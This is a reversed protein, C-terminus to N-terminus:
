DSQGNAGGGLLAVACLVVMPRAWNVLARHKALQLPAPVASHAMSQPLRM